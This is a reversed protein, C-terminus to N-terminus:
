ADQEIADSPCLNVCFGCGSCLTEDIRIVDGEVSFAPCGYTRVCAQCRTCKEDTIHYQTRRGKSRTRVIECPHRLVVLSPGPFAVAERLAQRAENIEYPDVVKVHKVGCGKAVEEISVYSGEGTPDIAGPHPQFGTMATTRNDLVAVVIRHNNSVANILGPIAAHFFTSDGVISLVPEDQVRSVGSAMGVSAGMCVLTDGIALPPVVGLAYCGIDTCYVTKARLTTKMIYFSARHPCGPCLVPPRSPIEFSLRFNRGSEIQEPLDRGVIKSIADSVIGTSYERNRPLHGTLKGLITPPDSIGFSISRVANELIPELEEVIIIKRFRRVFDVILRSPPPYTFGLKLVSATVGLVDLAELCYNFSVGSTIIGVDGSEGVVRNLHTADSMQRAQELKKLLVEHRVLANSPIMVFRKADKVFEAKSPKQEIEGLTVPGLTHNVRMTTRLLIPLELEESLRFAETTMDKAEQADSPELCPIGALQAYYRNDQENQSSWCDPDDASVIVCGARVGVYALTILVDSAVNVGVHKMSAVSRVGTVAAGAAVELAVKENTSYEVYMGTKEAVQYLTDTIESSPTGPYCTSLRVGAEICGRAIAENGSM